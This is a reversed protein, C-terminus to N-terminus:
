SHALQVYKLIRLGLGIKWKGLKGCVWHKINANVSNLMCEIQHLVWLLFCHKKTVGSINMQRINRANTNLMSIKFSWVQESSTPISTSEIKCTIRILRHRKLLHSKEM